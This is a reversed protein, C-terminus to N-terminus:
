ATPQADADVAVGPLQRDLEACLSVLVAGLTALRQATEASEPHEHLAAELDTAAAHLRTAGLTAAVGKLTHARREAGARDGTELLHAIDAVAHRNGDVFRRLLSLLLPANGAVRRLAGDVDLGEIDLGLGAEGAARLGSQAGGAGQPRIWRKLAATLLAPEIPKCLYDNMGAEFCRERDQQLVNATMAVIPVVGTGPLRRIARTAALGDMVPMQMDMFVLDYSAEQVKGVAVQGNEAIDVILGLAELMAKAVEQNLENDEVLLIRAGRLAALDAQANAAPAVTVPAPRAPGGLVQILTDFLLSPAVPKLLVSTVGCAAVEQMLEERGHATVMVCRPPAALGLDRIRQATTVGDMGPMRWDLFVVAYDRNARAAQRVCELAVVGSAAQDVVFGMRTLMDKLVTRATGNDDVVLMRAGRLDPAPLLVPAQARGIGLRVRFWFTSGKGVVSDVGIEGHMLDILRKSIVLGLGTGGYRRSTSTDGQQFSQFLRGQQEESLGIGTDRVAFELLAEQEGRELLRVVISVEGSETFKVANSCFNLLVQRIRLEDGLLARPVDPAVDLLIELGKAVIRESLLTTVNVLLKELDFEAQELELKGAESKSFDLIDNIIGLLHESAGQIKSLYDRQRPTLETRLALHAMGIIANMPTRIEHSMNALFDSKARAAEEAIARARKIEEVAARELTIDRIMGAVGKAPDGPDIPAAHLRGWFRSGDKRVLEVEDRYAEGAAFAQEVQRGAALFSEEDTFWIRSTRGVLEGPAYGLMTEMTRNCRVVARDRLLVIGATSADFVAQQEENLARLSASTAELEATRSAVLQELHQQHEALAAEAERQETVDVGFAVAIRAGEPNLVTSYRWQIRRAAGDRSWITNEMSASDEDTAVARLFKGRSDAGAEYRLLQTFWDQGVLEAEAYGTIAQGTANLFLVGGQPDLGLVMVNATDIIQEAFRKARALRESAARAQMFIGLREAVLGVLRHEESLFPEGDHPAHAELYAITVRGLREAEGEVDAEHIVVARRLDATAHVVGMLEVSAAASEPYFLGSPLAMAVERVVEELPRAVRETAKYVANLCRMEKIREQLEEELEHQETVDRAIGIVGMPEGDPGLVRRKTTEYLRRTGVGPFTAWVITRMPEDSALAQRETAASRAGVERGFFDGTTRGIVADPSKGLATAFAENCVVYRGTPDKMWAPDPLAHFLTAFRAREAELAATQLRVRRRAARLAFVLMVSFLALLALGAAAGRLLPGYDTAPQPLWKERLAADEAATIAAAGQAILRLTDVDGKRVARHLEGRGLEFAKLFAQQGEHRALHYNAPFEDLCFVRVDNRLAHEVVAANTPFARIQDIGASRLREACADGELTGVVFGKLGSLDTIGRLGAHVYIGVPVEAYVPSFDHVREREPTRFIPDIVDVEGRVLAQRAEAFRRARVDVPIGTRKSWLAWWDAVYGVAAGTSDQFLFPPYNDDGVVRLVKREDASACAASLLAGLVLLPLAAQCRRLGRHAGGGAQRPSKARVAAARSAIVVASSTRM